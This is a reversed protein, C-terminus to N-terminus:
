NVDHTVIGYIDRERIMLLEHGDIEIPAGGGYPFMIVDGVKVTIPTIEGTSECVFGEGAAIIDAEQSVEAALLQIKGTQKKERQKILLFDQMPKFSSM